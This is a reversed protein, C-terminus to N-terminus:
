NGFSKPKLDKGSDDVKDIEKESKSKLISRWMFERKESCRIEIMMM